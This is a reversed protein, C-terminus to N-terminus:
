LRVEKIGRVSNICFIRDANKLDELYLVKEECLGEELMRMREIGDLLGCALPPTYLKGDKEIVINTRAGETLEGDINFFIEDYVEGHKIKAFSSEYWPRYTTKFFLFENKDTRNLAISIRDTVDLLIDKYQVEFSGDKSLLIRVMGDHEPKLFKLDEPFVFGFHEAAKKMREFHEKGYLFIGNQAKLTEIIKFDCSNLFAAKTRTEEWEDHIDSDWVIAGGARYTFFTDDKKKQLIRIPVSFETKEPCLFGIAGCYINRKGTEVKDIIKMTSIKPAGTISGCPFIAEFIDYLTVDQRLEACVTSTMQHLTKHTEIEFLRSVKVTGTQAIKSLDNRLLDVIMVNEACNKVDNKLFNINELDKEPTDGRSVTGKMPKTKINGGELEFFLEPSFSLVTEYENKIFTNYPTKQKNLLYDYFRRDEASSSVKWDYTYNVEYTNGQSIEDKIRVLARSYDEFSLCPEATIDVYGVDRKNYEKYTEFVEFYLLPLDSSIRKNLFVDKSEYRVYGLCYYKKSLFEIRNLATKLHASDFVKIVEVPNEFCMHSYIQMANLKVPLCLLFFGRELM